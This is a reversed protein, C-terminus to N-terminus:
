NNLEGAVIWKSIQTIMCDSIENGGLPMANYGTSHSVCGLLQGNKALATVGTYTDLVFGGGTSAAASTSHCSYCYKSLIPVVGKSYTYTGTDCNVPCDTDDPAGMNIWRKMLSLDTSDLVKVPSKPMLDYYCEEYVESGSANGKVIGKAIITAYSTFVYGKEASSANHCGSIACNGTFIPLIDREFCVSTDVVNTDQGTGAPTTTTTTTAGGSPTVNRVIGSKHTCAFFFVLLVITLLVFTHKKM